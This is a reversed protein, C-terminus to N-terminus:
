KTNDLLKKIRGEKVWRDVFRVKLQTTDLHLKDYVKLWKVFADFLIKSVEPSNDEYDVEPRIISYDTCDSDNRRLYERGGDVMSAGCSCEQYDHRYLSMIFDGCTNCEIANLEIVDM